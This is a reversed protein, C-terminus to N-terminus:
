SMLAKLQRPLWSGSVSAAVANTQRMAAANKQPDIGAQYQDIRAAVYDSFGARFLHRASDPFLDAM